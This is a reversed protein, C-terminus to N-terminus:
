HLFDPITASSFITFYVRRNKEFRPHLGVDLLGGQGSDFVEPVGAISGSALQGDRVLRLRGPRETILIDGNPLWAMSWPHELGSLLPVARFGREAPVDSQTIYPRALLRDSCIMLFLITIAFSLRPKM